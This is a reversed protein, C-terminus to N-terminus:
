KWIRYIQVREDHYDTHYGEMKEYNYEAKLLFQELPRAEMYDLPNMYERELFCVIM